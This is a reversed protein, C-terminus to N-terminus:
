GDTEGRERKGSSGSEWGGAPPSKKLMEHVPPSPGPYATTRETPHPGVDAISLLYLSRDVGLPGSWGLVLYPNVGLKYIFRMDKKRIADKEEETFRYREMVAEPDTRFEGALRQDHKMDFFLKGVEYAGM